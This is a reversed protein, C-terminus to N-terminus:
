EDIVMLGAIGPLPNGQTMTEDPGDVAMFVFDDQLWPDASLAKYTFPVLHEENGDYMYVM